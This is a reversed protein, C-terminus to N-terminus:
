QIFPTVRPATEHSSAHTIGISIPNISQHILSSVRPASEQNPAHAHNSGVAFFEPQPKSM